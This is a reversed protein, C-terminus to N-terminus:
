NYKEMVENYMKKYKSIDGEGINLESNSLIDAKQTKLNNKTIPFKGDTINVIQYTGERATNPRGKGYLFFIYEEGIVAPEYLAVAHLHLEGSISDTFYFYEETIAIVDDVKLDGSFVKTIKLKTKTFGYAARNLELNERDPLVEAKVIIQSVNEVDELDEPINIAYMFKREINTKAVIDEDSLTIIPSAYLITSSFLIGLFIIFTKSVINKLM